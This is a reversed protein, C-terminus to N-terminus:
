VDPPAPHTRRSVAALTATVAGRNRLARLPLAALWLVDGCGVTQRTGGVAELEIQGQEVVVIADRWDAEDYDLVGGPPLTVVRLQLDPRLRSRLFSLPGEGDGM